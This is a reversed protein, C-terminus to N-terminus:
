NSKLEPIRAPNLKRARAEIIGLAFHNIYIESPLAIGQFRYIRSDLKHVATLLCRGVLSTSAIMPGRSIDIHDGVRYVTVTQGSSSKTAIHPIQEAKFANDEFMKLAVSSDIDLRQFSHNQRVFKQFSASIQRLDSQSPVWDDLSLQVDYVFSGSRVNAPPFSHLSVSIEDQFSGEVVAGLLFSCSRWFTKNVLSAQHQDEPKMSLLKLTCDSPIPRHFDWIEGNIEAAVSNKVVHESIHQACNYPTSVGKNMVLTTTENDLGEYTVEIKELRPILAQQRKLEKDFISLRKARIEEIRLRTQQVVHANSNTCFQRSFTSLFKFRTVAM